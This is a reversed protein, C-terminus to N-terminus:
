WIMNPYLAAMFENPFLNDLAEAIINPCPIGDIRMGWRIVAAASLVVDFAIFVALFLTLPKYIRLPIKSIIKEFVPQMAIYWFIALFGWFVTYKLCVRGGLNLTKGTYDWSVSGFVAEQFFSFSFEVATGSVAGLGFIWVIKNKGTCNRAILYFLLAGVGYVATLPAIVM